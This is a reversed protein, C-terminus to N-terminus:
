NIEKYDYKKLSSIRTRPKAKISKLTANPTLKDDVNVYGDGKKSRQKKQNSATMKLGNWFSKLQDANLNDTGIYLTYEGEKGLGDEIWMEFPKLRLKKEFKKVFDIVPQSSATGCCISSYGVAIYNKNTQSFLTIGLM